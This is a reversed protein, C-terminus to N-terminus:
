LRIALPSAVRLGVACPGGPKHTGSLTQRIRTSRFSYGPLTDAWESFTVDPGDLLESTLMPM